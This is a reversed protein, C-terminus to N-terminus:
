TEQTIRAGQVEFNIYRAYSIQPVTMNATTVINAFEKPCRCNM